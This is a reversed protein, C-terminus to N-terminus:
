SESGARFLTEQSSQNGIFTHHVFSALEVHQMTGIQDKTGPFIVNRWGRTRGRIMNPDRPSVGEVLIEVTTGLLSQMQENCIREQISLVEQLRREKEEELVDDKWRAAPAGKRESYAFLFAHSFGVTELAEKTEEFEKETETPFGVIMDTGISVGPVIERFLAIKEDYEKRTYMRNMKSLVRSSGSQLPFHIYECVKPLDRVAEMLERTIDVPHSTLFRIREVGQIQDIRFLLDSLRVNWEPRDKGYSDVNQGLLTIEKYGLDALRLCENVIDDLDRSVEPGRAYPVICYTCHKDCGRIISVCAKVPDDRKTVCYDPEESFISDVRIIKTGDNEIEDLIANLQHINNPGMIFDIGSVKQFLKEKKSTAMCGAIGIIPFLKRKKALRGLKGLVKREALDRISCTNFIILDAGAEDDSKKMGRQELIGVMMESDLENM